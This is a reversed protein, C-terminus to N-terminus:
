FENPLSNVAVSTNLEGVRQENLMIISFNLKLTMKQGKVIESQGDAMLIQIRGNSLQMRPDKAIDCCVLRPSSPFSSSDDKSRQRYSTTITRALDSAFRQKLPNDINLRQLSMCAMNDIVTEASEGALSQEWQQPESNFTYEARQLLDIAMPSDALTVATVFRDYQPRLARLMGKILTARRATITDDSHKPSVPAETRGQQEAVTPPESKESSVEQGSSVGQLAPEPLPRRIGGDVTKDLGEVPQEDLTLRNFALDLNMHKGKVIVAKGYVMLIQIKGNTTQMRPDKNIDWCVPPPPQQSWSTQGQRPRERYAKKIDWIIESAFQSTLIADADVRRMSNTIMTDIVDEVNDSDQLNQTSPVQFQQFDCGATKLLNGFDASGALSVENVFREYRPRLTRLMGIILTQAQSQM